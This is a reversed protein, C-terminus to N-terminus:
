PGTIAARYAAEPDDAVPPPGGPGAGSSSRRPSSRSTSFDALLAKKGPRDSSAARSPSRPTSVTSMAPVTVLTHQSDEARSAAVKPNRTTRTASAVASTLSSAWSAANRVTYRDIPSTRGTASTRDRSAGGQDPSGAAGARRRWRAWGALVAASAATAASGWLVLAADDHALGYGGWLVGESLALIWTGPALGSLDPTRWAAVVQPSYSMWVSVGLVAGLVTWGGALGVTALLAGWAAVLVLGRRAGSRAVAVTVATSGIFPGVCALVLPVTATGVGYLMWGAANVTANGAAALSVGVPAHRRLRWVQPLAMTASLGTAVVTLELSWSM